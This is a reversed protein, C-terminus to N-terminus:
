GNEEMKEVEQLKRVFQLARQQAEPSLGHATRALIQVSEDAQEEQQAKRRMRQVVIDLEKAIEEHVKGNRFYDLPVRFLEALLEVKDIAPKSPSGPQRLKRITEHSIAQRQALENIRDAVERNTPEKGDRAAAAFLLNLARAITWDGNPGAGDQQPM